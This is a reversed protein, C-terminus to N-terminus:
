VAGVPARTKTLLAAALEFAGFGLLAAGVSGDEEPLLAPGACLIAGSAADLALHLPMPLLKAVGLEYRTLLSYGLTGVAAATTLNIARSGWGLTRPAVLLTAVSLYDLLGHSRTSVFRVKM